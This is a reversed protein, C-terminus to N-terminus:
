VRIKKMKKSFRSRDNIEEEVAIEPSIVPSRGGTGVSRNGAVNVRSWSRGGDNKRRRGGQELMKRRRSQLQSACWGVCFLESTRRRGGQELMKRRRWGDDNNRREEETTVRSRRVATNEPACSTRWRSGAGVCLQTGETRRRVATM